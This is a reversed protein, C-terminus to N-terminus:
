ATARTLFSKTWSATSLSFKKKQWPPDALLNEPGRRRSIRSKVAAEDPSADQLLSRSQGADAVRSVKFSSSLGLRKMLPAIAVEIKEQLGREAGFRSIIVIEGGPKLVRAIEDLAREPDPVLTIVFPVSVVDFADDPFGMACADMAVVGKVHSLGLRQVKEQAKALMHVSLDAAVVEGDPRYHRLVLGTGVGIELIRQGAASAARAVKRHPLIFLWSYILDYFKAFTEYVQAQEKADYQISM